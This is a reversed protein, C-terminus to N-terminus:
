ETGESMVTEVAKKKAKVPKKDLEELKSIAADISTIGVASQGKNEILKKLREVITAM